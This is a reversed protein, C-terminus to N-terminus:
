ASTLPPPLMLSLVSFRNTSPCSTNSTTIAATWVGLTVIILIALGVVVKALSLPVIIRQRSAVMNVVAFRRRVIYVTQGESLV